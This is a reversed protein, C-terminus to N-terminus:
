RRRRLMGAVLLVGALLNSPEPVATWNLTGGNFKFQGQDTVLGNAAIGSGSFSTFIAELTSSGSGTAFINNWSKDNNWFDDTFASGAGLVIQFVSTGTVAGGAIVKDYGGQNPDTNSAGSIVNLDWNFLSGSSYTLSSSFNQTRDSGSDSVDHTGSITTAGGVTGYGGLTTGSAATVAGTAGSNDGNIFLKGFNVNTTGKYDNAGSLVASTTSKVTIGGAGSVIGSISLSKTSSGNVEIENGLNTIPSNFFLNGGVPNLETTKDLTLPVNFTYDGAGSGSIAEIKANGSGGGMKLYASDVQAFSRSSSNEFLIQNIQHEIGGLGNVTMSTQNSNNFHVITYTKTADYNYQGDVLDERLTDYNDSSRHWRNQSGDVWYGSTAESRWYVNSQGQAVMTFCYLTVLLNYAVSLKMTTCNELQTNRVPLSTM